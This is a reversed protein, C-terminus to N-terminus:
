LDAIYDRLRLEPTLGLKKRLRGLAKKISSYNIHNVYAIEKNGMGMKVYACLRKDRNTLDPHLENLKDFFGTNVNEFHLKFDDWIRNADDFQKIEELIEQAVFQVPMPGMTIIKRLNTNINKMKEMINQKISAALALERDQRDIKSELYRTEMERLSKIHKYANSLRLACNIRAELEQTQIPKSVYDVAGAELAIKLHKPEIMVGTAIIVPIDEILELESMRTIAEIGTMEPMEWDMLILDPREQEALTLGQRGNNAHIIVYPKDKFFEIYAKLVEPEDECILIKREM